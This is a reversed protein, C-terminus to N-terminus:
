QTNCTHVSPLVAARRQHKRLTRDHQVKPLGLVGVALASDCWRIEEQGDFESLLHQNTQTNDASNDYNQNRTVTNYKQTGDNNTTKHKIAERM